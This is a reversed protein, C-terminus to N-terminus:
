AVLNTVVFEEAGPVTGDVGGCAIGTSKSRMATPQQGVVVVPEMMM